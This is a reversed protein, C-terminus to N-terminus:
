IFPRKILSENSHELLQRLGKGSHRSLWFAFYWLALTVLANIIGVIIAQTLLFVQFDDDPSVIVFVMCYIKIAGCIPTLFLFLHTRFKGEKFAARFGLVTTAIVIFYFIISLMIGKIMFEWYYLCVYFLFSSITVSYLFFDLKLISTFIAFIRFNETYLNGVVGRNETNLESM